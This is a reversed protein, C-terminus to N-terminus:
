RSSKNNYRSRAELRDNREEPDPVELFRRDDKFYIQKILAYEVPDAMTPRKKM